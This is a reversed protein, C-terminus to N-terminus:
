YVLIQFKNMEIATINKVGCSVLEFLTDGAGLIISAKEVNNEITEDLYQQNQTTSVFPKQVHINPLFGDNNILEQADLFLKVERSDEKIANMRLLKQTLAFLNELSM